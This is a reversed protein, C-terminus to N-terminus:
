KIELALADRSHLSGKKYIKGVGFYSKINELIERDKKHLSISFMAGVNWVLRYSPSKAINVSFCGKGDSFGTIGDPNLSLFKTKVTEQAVTQSPLSLTSTFLNRAKPQPLVAYNLSFKEKYFNKTCYM